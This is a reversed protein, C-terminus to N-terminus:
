NSGLALNEILSYVRWNLSNKLYSLFTPLICSNQISLYM